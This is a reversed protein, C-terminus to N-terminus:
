KLTSNNLKNQTLPAPHQALATNGHPAATHHAFNVTQRHNPSLDYNNQSFYFCKIIQLNRFTINQKDKCFFWFTLKKKM